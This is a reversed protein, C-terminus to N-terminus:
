LPKIPVCAEIVHSKSDRPTLYLELCPKDELEYMSEPLWTGLIYEFGQNAKSIAKGFSDMNDNEVEIRCVAYVGEDVDQISVGESGEIVHEPITLSADYRHKESPPTDQHEYFIGISITNPNFLQKAAVWKSVKGFASSIESNLIGKEYGELHSVYAVHFTPLVKTEINL